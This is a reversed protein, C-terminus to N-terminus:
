WVGPILRKTAKRYAVYEDGFADGLAMEEVHIRYLLAAMPPLVTVALGVWNRSHMGVAVFIVLMGLYSPHRVVGFIGSRNLTQTEHIAVNASFSRGLTVIATWRLALGLALLALSAYRVWHAGGFLTHPQTEGLYIGGSISGLIVTWLIALSGRDRVRGSSRRTRTVLLILVESAVWAWYLAGWLLLISM